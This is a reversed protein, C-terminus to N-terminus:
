AETTRGDKHEKITKVIDLILLASVCLCFIRFFISGSFKSGLFVMLVPLVFLLNKEKM